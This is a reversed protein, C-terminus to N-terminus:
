RYLSKIRGWSSREVPDPWTFWLEDFAPVGIATGSSGFGHINGDIHEFSEEFIVEGDILVTIADQHFHDLIQVTHWGSDPGDVAHTATRLSTGNHWMWQCEPCTASDLSLWSFESFTYSWARGDSDHSLRLCRGSSSNWGIRWAFEWPADRVTFSLFDPTQGDCSLWVYHASGSQVQAFTNGSIAFAGLDSPDGTSAFGSPLVGDEYTFQEECYLGHACLPVAVALIVLVGRWM